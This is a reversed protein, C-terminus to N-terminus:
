IKADQGIKKFYNYITDDIIIEVNPHKHLISAPLDETTEEELLRRIAEQKREGFAILVICKARMISKLGMSVAQKPVDEIKDFHVSNAKITSDTLDVVRTESEFSTGPENFGIHGNEGIGLLQIDPDGISKLHEEYRKAEAELDKAKGQPIHIHSSQWGDNYDFLLQHMYSHYSQSHEPELGVYEDLNFTQVQSLDTDNAELLESFRPYIDTMTNGTALGLIAKPNDQILKLLKIAVYDSAIAKNKLNILKM